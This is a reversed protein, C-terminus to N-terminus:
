AGVLSRRRRLAGLGALGSGFLLLAAPLPVTAISAIGGITGAFTKGSKIAALFGNWASNKTSNTCLPANQNATQCTLQGYLWLSESTSGGTFQKQDAWGGFNSTTFGLADDAMDVSMGTLSATFLPSTTTTWNLGSPNTGYTPSAWPPISGRISYNGTVVGNAISATVSLVLNQVAYAGSPFNFVAACTPCANSLTDTYTLAVSHGAVSATVTGNESWFDPYGPKAINTDQFPIVTFALAQHGVAVAALAVASVLM